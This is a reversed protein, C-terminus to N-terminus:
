ASHSPQRFDESASAMSIGLPLGRPSPAAVTVSMRPPSSAFPMVASDAPAVVPM